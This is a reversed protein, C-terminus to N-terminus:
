KLKPQSVNEYVEAEIISLRGTAKSDDRAVGDDLKKGTIEVQKNEEASAAGALRIRVKTGKTPKCVITYYGLSNETTGNFAEKGDVTILLPYVRSKFNNLKLTVESVTAERELEYEIWAWPLTVSKWSADALAPAEAGAADGVKVKWGSNFNYKARQASADLLLLLLISSLFLRVNM